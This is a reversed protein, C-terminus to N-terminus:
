KKRKAMEEKLKKAKHQLEFVNDISHEIINIAIVLEEESPASLMHVAENGLFRLQHLIESNSKTLIGKASLGEIKGDLNKSIRTNGASDKVSGSSINTEICIGEIIARLGVSCLISQKNNFADITEKYIKKIITPTNYLTKTSLVNVMRSPFLEQTWPDEEHAEAYFEQQRDNYLKRFSVTDCGQCQIIQYKHEEWWQEDSSVINQSHESLVKQNTSIKCESCISKM